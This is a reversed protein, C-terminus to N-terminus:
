GNEVYQYSARKWRAETRPTLTTGEVDGEGDSDGGDPSGDHGGGGKNEKKNLAQPSLYNM